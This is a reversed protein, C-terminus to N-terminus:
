RLGSSNAAIRKYNGEEPSVADPLTSSALSLTTAVDSEVLDQLFSSFSFSEASCQLTRLIICAIEPGAYELDITLVM